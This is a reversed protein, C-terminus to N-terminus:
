LSFIPLPYNRKYMATINIQNATFSPILPIKIKEIFFNDPTLLQTQSNSNYKHIQM